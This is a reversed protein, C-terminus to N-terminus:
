YLEVIEHGEQLHWLLHGNHLSVLHADPCISHLKPVTWEQVCEKSALDWLKIHGTRDEVTALLGNECIHWCFTVNGKTEIKYNLVQEIKSSPSDYACVNFDRTRDEGFTEYIMLNSHPIRECRRESWHYVPFTSVMRCSDLNADFQWIQFQGLGIKGSFAAFYSADLQTLVGWATDCLKLQWKKHWCRREENAAKWEDDDKMGSCQADFKLGYLLSRAWLAFHKDDSFATACIFADTVHSPLHPLLPHLPVIPWTGPLNLEMQGTQFDHFHLSDTNQYKVVRGACYAAHSFISGYPSWGAVRKWIGFAFVKM